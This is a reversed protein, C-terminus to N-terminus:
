IGGTNLKGATSGTLRVASSLDNIQSSRAQSMLNSSRNEANSKIQSIDQLGFKYTESTVANATDNDGTLSIGSQLFSMRQAAALRLTQRSKIEADRQGQDALAKNQKTANASTVYASAGYLAVGVAAVVVGTIVWSGRNSRLKKKLDNLLNM